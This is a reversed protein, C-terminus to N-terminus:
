VQQSKIYNAIETGLTKNPNADSTMGIITGQEAQKMFGWSIDLIQKTFSDTLEANCSDTIKPIYPVLVKKLPCQVNLFIIERGLVYWRVVNNVPEHKLQYIESYPIRVFETCGSQVPMIDAIASYRIDFRFSFLDEPLRAVYRGNELTVDLEEQIFWESNIMPTYVGDEKYREQKSREFEMQLLAAGVARVLFLCHDEGIFDQEDKYDQKYFDFLVQAIVAPKAM